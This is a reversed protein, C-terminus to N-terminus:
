RESVAGAGCWRGPRPAWSPWVASSRPHSPGPTRAGARATRTGHDHTAPATTTPHATTTSTTTSPPAATSPASFAVVRDARLRWSSGPAWRRRRSTTPRCASPPTSGARCRDLPRPRLPRREPRDDLGPRRRRHAPRRGGLLELPPPAGAPSASARVAITGSLCPLYVTTGGRRGRRRHRRRVRSPMRHRRAASAASRQCRRAPLGRDAVQRRGGGARRRLLAPATSLDLDAANNRAWASPAFYQLLHLSPSLELVSDSNDYAHGASAVSGNGATVWINGGADVVPAAGGM